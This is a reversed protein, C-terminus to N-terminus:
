SETNLAKGELNLCVPRLLFALMESKNKTKKVYNLGKFASNFGIQEKSANNLARGIKWM